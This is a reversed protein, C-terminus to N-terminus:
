GLKFNIPVVYQVKVNKGRQKGPIWDPMAQVHKLAAQDLLKDAGRAIEVNTVKGKEDIVFRVFVKGEIDNDRAMPPYQIKALYKMLEMQACQEKEAKSTKNECGPFRPMDEVVTFIEQEKVVEKEIVEPVEIKTDIDIEVSQIEPEDELIEDDQVVEIEPPPPPPPPPKVQETQPPEVEADLEITEMVFGSLDKPKDRYSLAYISVGFSLIFGLALLYKKHEGISAEPYKKVFVSKSLETNKYMEAIQVETKAKAMLFHGYVKGFGWLLGIFLAFVFILVFLMM